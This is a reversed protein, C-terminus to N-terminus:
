KVYAYFVQHGFALFAIRDIGITFATATPSEVEYDGMDPRLRKYLKFRLSFQYIDANTTELIYISPDPPDMYLISSYAGDSMVMEQDEKGPRGDIYKVPNDCIVPDSSLGSSRCDVLRGDQRLLYIEQGNVDMDVIQNLDPKEGANSGEFFDTPTDLFQGNTSKFVQVTNAAPNLVYLYGSEYVIHAVGGDTGSLSPLPQVIPDEGPTCYIVNGLGDAALIHANYPNNIPLQTMDVLAGVAASGFSGAACVFDPDIEYGQSTREAHIVRGGAADFLYLDAGFSIIQTINIESYLSGIIAPHYELRVAGDLVDLSDQAQDRLATVEDTSRYSEAQDLFSLVQVWQDRSDLPDEATVAQQSATMAQNMHYSYQLTRGRALYIGVAIGAVVLPVVVAIVTLTGKSLRLVDQSGKPSWKAILDRFFTQIRGKTNRWWTFFAQLGKISERKLQEGQERLTEKRSPGSKEATSPHPQQITQNPEAVPLNKDPLAPTQDPRSTIEQTKGLGQAEEQEQEQEHEQEQEDPLPPPMIAQEPTEDSKEVEPASASRSEPQLHHIQGEGPVVQVLDIRFDSPSQNLLRRRLNPLTPFQDSFLADETWSEPTKDTMFVYGGNGLNAQYYRISPTRSVGLGRDSQSADSFHQLGQHTLVFAQMGGSQVLYINQRHVAVATLTGTITEGKEAVKLNEELMILNLTEILTRLAATVSGSTKFFTQSLRELLEQQTEPSMGESITFFSLILKDEARSRASRRPPAAAYFGPLQAVLDGQRIHIPILNLDYM